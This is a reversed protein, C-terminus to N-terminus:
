IGNPYKINFKDEIFKEQEPTRFEMDLKINIWHKYNEKLNDDLLMNHKKRFQFVDDLCKLEKLIIPELIRRPLETYKIM